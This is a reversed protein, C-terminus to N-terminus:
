FACSGYDNHESCYKTVVQWQSELVHAVLLKRQHVSNSAKTSRAKAASLNGGAMMQEPQNGKHTRVSLAALALKWM